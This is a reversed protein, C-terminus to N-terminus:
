LLDKAAAYVRKDGAAIVRPDGDLTKPRGHWDTIVGGAGEVIPVIAIFDYIGLQDEIILDLSGSALLGYFYCDGQYVTYQVLSNVRKFREPDDRSIQSPSGTGFIAHNLTECARTRVAKGNFYAASKAEGQAGFGGTVGWWRENLIAQDVIGLVPTADYCLGIMTGFTPRGITFSKTGDIPDLVWTWGNQTPKYGFEEGLIGDQPRKTEIMERLRQEIRRDAITVPTADAKREITFPTRFYERAIPAAADALDHAFKILEQDNNHTM